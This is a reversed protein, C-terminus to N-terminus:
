VGAIDLTVQKYSEKTNNRTYFRIYEKSSVVELSDAIIEMAEIWKPNSINYARLALIKRPNVEGKKDVEFAKTILQQGDISAVDKMIEHICEDIKAKAIQLKEDFNINDATAVQIKATGSFNELTYGKAGKKSEVGYVSLLLRFYSDVEDYSDDKFKKIVKTVDAAKLLIKEIMEDKLKDELKVRDPHIADGNKAIWWDKDDLLAM